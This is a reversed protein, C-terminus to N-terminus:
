FWSRIPPAPFVQDCIAVEDSPREAEKVVMAWSSASSDSTVPLVPVPLKTNDIEGVNVPVLIKALELVVLAVVVLAVVVVKAIEPSVEPRTGNIVVPPRSVSEALKVNLPM